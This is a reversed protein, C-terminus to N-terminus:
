HPNTIPQTGVVPAPGTIWAVHDVVATSDDLQDSGDWIAFRITVDEGGAVPSTTRMWPTVGAYSQGWVDFGTGQLALAGDPCYPMPPAPCMPSGCNSAFFPQSAPDCGSEHPTNTTFPLSNMDIAVNGAVAGTPPPSVLAVFADDYQTCVWAPFEFSFVRFDFSFGTANTPTRVRVELGVDDGIQMTPPCSTTDNPLGPPPAGGMHNQCDSSGCPDPGGPTRAHGTSL